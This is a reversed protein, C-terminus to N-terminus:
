APRVVHKNSWPNVYFVLALGILMVAFGVYLVPVGPDGSSDIISSASQQISISESRVFERENWVGRIMSGALILLLSVHALVLGAVRTGPPRVKDRSARLNKVSCAVMSVILLGLLGVFWWTSYLHTLGLRSWQHLRESANPHDRLYNVVESGQPIATGTLAAIFIFAVLPITFRASGFIETVHQLVSAKM